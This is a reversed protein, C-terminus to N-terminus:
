KVTVFDPTYEDATKWKVSLKTGNLANNSVTFTAGDAMIIKAPNSYFTLLAVGNNVKNGSVVVNGLTGNIDSFMIAANKNEADAEMNFTCNTISITQGAVDQEVVKVPRNTNFVCNDISVNTYMTYTEGGVDTTQGINKFWLPNTNSSSVSNEHKNFTSNKITIQKTSFSGDQLWLADFTCGDFVVEAIQHPMNSGYLNDITAGSLGFFGEIKVNKFTVTSKDPIRFAVKNQAAHDVAPGDKITGGAIILNIGDKDTSSFGYPEEATINREYKDRINDNGIVVSGDKLSVNGIDLYVNKIGEPIETLANFEALSYFATDKGADADYTNNFSDYEVTDQTAYVTISAGEMTLGQYENGADAKMHGELNFALSENPKMKVAIDNDPYSLMGEFSTMKWEIVDRLDVEDGANSQIGSVYVYATLALNGKNVVRLEPLKYTCNPEWFIENAARNDATKFTLTKGEADVWEGNSDKMELAVDLKGAVIKNVGTTATDTFWAFTSGALMAFCLLLSTFSLLLASKKSKLKM